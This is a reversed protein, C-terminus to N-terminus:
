RTANGDTEGNDVVMTVVILVREVTIVNEVLPITNNMNRWMNARAVLGVLVETGPMIALLQGLRM